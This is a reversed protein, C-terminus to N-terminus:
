NQRIGTCTFYALVSCSPILTSMIDFIDTYQTASIDVSPLMSVLWGGNIKKKKKGHPSLRITFLLLVGRLGLSGAWPLWSVHGSAACNFTSVLERCSCNAAVTLLVIYPTHTRCTIIQTPCLSINNNFFFDYLQISSFWHLFCTPFIQKNYKNPLDSGERWHPEEGESWQM